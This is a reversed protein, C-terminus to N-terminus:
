SWIAKVPDDLLAILLPLIGALYTGIVPVFQSLLGVWIALPLPFPVDLVIFALWHTLGSLLALLARSYIYGGTKDIAIEWVRLM